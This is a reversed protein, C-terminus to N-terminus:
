DQPTTNEEYFFDYVLTRDALIQHAIGKPRNKNIYIHFASRGIELRAAQNNRPDSSLVHLVFNERPITTKGLLQSVIDAYQKPITELSMYKHGAIPDIAVGNAHTDITQRPDNM